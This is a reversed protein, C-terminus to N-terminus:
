KVLGGPNDTVVRDLLANIGKGVAPMVDIANSPHPVCNCTVVRAAGAAQLEAYAAGGFLGHVGVCVPAPLGIQRLRGIAAIMTHASSIIDDVLVPTHGAWRGADPLSVEVNFDDHRIKTLVTHPLDEFAAVAKVWQESEGDPGVLIPNAVERRIWAAIAPAASVFLAPITYIDDLSRYRHLHPDVTVLFDFHASLVRAFSRSTVAEGPHFQKDQRMYALYPAVLGVMTAGQERAADAAFLLSALKEDPHDLSCLLLVTEEMGEPLTVLTEGDPFHHLELPASRCQMQDVLAAAVPENGPSVLLLTRNM